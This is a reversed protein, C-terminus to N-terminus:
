HGSQTHWSTQASGQLQISVTSGWYVLDSEEGTSSMSQTQTSYGPEMRHEGWSQCPTHEWQGLLLMPTQDPHPAWLVAALAPSSHVAAAASRHVAAAPSCRGLLQGDPPPQRSVM